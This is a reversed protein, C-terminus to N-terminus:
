ESVKRITRRIDLLFNEVFAFCVSVFRGYGGLDADFRTTYLTSWFTACKERVDIYMVTTFFNCKKCSFVVQKCQFGYAVYYHPGKIVIILLYILIAVVTHTLFDGRLPGSM